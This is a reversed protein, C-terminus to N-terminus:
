NKPVGLKSGYGTAERKSAHWFDSFVNDCSNSSINWICLDHKMPGVNKKKYCTMTIIAIRLLWGLLDLLTTRFEVGDIFFGMFERQFGVTLDLIGTILVFLFGWKYTMHKIGYFYGTRVISAMAMETYSFMLMKGHSKMTPTRAEARRFDRRSLEGLIFAMFSAKAAPVSTSPAVSSSNAASRHSTKILKKPAFISISQHSFWPSKM